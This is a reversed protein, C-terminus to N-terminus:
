GSEEEVLSRLWEYVRATARCDHENYEVSDPAFELKEHEVGFERTLRALSAPLLRGSDTFHWKRTKGGRTKAITFNIISSGSVNFYFKAMPHIRHISELIFRIDFRGGYHAYWRWGEYRKDLVHRFFSRMDRFVRYRSGDFAGVLQLDLNGIGYTEVDYVGFPFM